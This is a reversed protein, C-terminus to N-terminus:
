IARWKSMRRGGRWHKEGAPITETGTGTAGAMAPYAAGGAVRGRPVAGEAEEVAQRKTGGEAFPPNDQSQQSTRAPAQEGAADVTATKTRDGKGAMATDGGKAYPKGHQQAKPVTGESGIVRGSRQTQKRQQPPEKKLEGRGVVFQNRGVTPKTM